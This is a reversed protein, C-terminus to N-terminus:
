QEEAPDQQEHSEGSIAKWERHDVDAGTALAVGM